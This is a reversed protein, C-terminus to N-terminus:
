QYYKGRHKHEQIIDEKEDRKVVKQKGREESGVMTQKGREERKVM